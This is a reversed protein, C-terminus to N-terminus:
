RKNNVFICSCFFSFFFFFLFCLVVVSVFPVFQCFAVRQAANKKGRGEAPSASPAAGPARVERPQARVERHGRGPPDRLRRHGREASARESPAAAAPAPTPAKSAPAISFFVSMPPIQPGPGFIPFFSLTPSNPGPPNQVSFPLSVWCTSIDIESELLVRSIRLLTNAGM